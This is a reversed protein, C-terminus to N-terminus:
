LSQQVSLLAGESVLVFDHVGVAVAGGARRLGQLAERDSRTAYADARHAALLLSVSNLVLARTLIARQAAADVVADAMAEDALLRNKNDLYLVRLGVAACTALYAGLAQWNSLVRVDRAEAGAICAATERVLAVAEVCGATLGRVRLLAEPGARLVAALSGFRNITAKALPKTDIRPIGYFLLMELVEYDAVTGAGRGLVRERMRRRHGQPGHSAFVGAGAPAEAVPPWLAADGFGSNM